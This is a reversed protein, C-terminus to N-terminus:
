DFKSDLKLFFFIVQCFILWSCHLGSESSGWSYYAWCIGNSFSEIFNLGLREKLRLDMKRSTRTFVLGMKASCSFLTVLFKLNSVM